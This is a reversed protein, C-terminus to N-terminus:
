EFVFCDCGGVPHSMITKLAEYDLIQEPERRHSWNSHELHESDDLLRGTDLHHVMQLVFTDLQDMTVVLDCRLLNRLLIAKALKTSEETLPPIHSTENRIPCGMPVLFGWQSRDLLSLAHPHHTRLMTSFVQEKAVGGKMVQRMEKMLTKHDFHHKNRVIYNFNSIWRDVPKRMSVIFLPKPSGHASVIPCHGWYIGGEWGDDDKPCLEPHKRRDLKKSPRDFRKAIRVHIYQQISTGAAKPVHIYQAAAGDQEMPHDKRRSSCDFTYM